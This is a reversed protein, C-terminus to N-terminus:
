NLKLGQAKRGRGKNANGLFETQSHCNPCLLRMNNPTDNSPDGNKHDVHLTIPKGNWNNGLGCIECNYGRDEALYRRITSREIRKLKGEYWQQKHLASKHKGFCESSCYKGTKHHPNFEFETNCNICNANM